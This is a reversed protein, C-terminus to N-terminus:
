RQRQPHAAPNEPTTASSIRETDPSGRARAGGIRIAQVTAAINGEPSWTQIHALAARGLEKLRVPDAAAKKM